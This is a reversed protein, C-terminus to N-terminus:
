DLLIAAVTEAIGSETVTHLHQVLCGKQRWGNRDAAAEFKQPERPEVARTILTHVAIKTWYTNWTMYSIVEREKSGSPTSKSKHFKTETVESFLLM